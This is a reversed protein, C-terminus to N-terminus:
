IDNFNPKNILINGEEKLEDKKLIFGSTKTLDSDPMFPSTSRERRIFNSLTSDNDIDLLQPTSTVRKHSNSQNFSTSGEISRRKKDHPMAPSSTGSLVHAIPRNSNNEHKQTHLLKNLKMRQLKQKTKRVSNPKNSATM